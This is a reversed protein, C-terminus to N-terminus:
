PGFQPSAKPMEGGDQLSLMEPVATPQLVSDVSGLHEHILDDQGGEHQDNEQQSLLLPPITSSPLPGEKEVRTSDATAVSEGLKHLLLSVYSVMQKLTNTDFSVKAKAPSPARDTWEMQQRKEHLIQLVTQASAPEIQVESLDPSQSFAADTQEDSSTSPSKSISAVASAPPSEEPFPISKRRTRWGGPSPTQGSLSADSPGSIDMSARGPSVASAIIEKDEEENITALGILEEAEDWLQKEAGSRIGLVVAQELLGTLLKIMRAFDQILGFAGRVNGQSSIISQPVPVGLRVESHHGLGSTQNKQPVPDDFEFDEEWDECLNQQDPPLQSSASLETSGEMEPELDDFDFPDPETSHPALPIFSITSDPTFTDEFCDEHSPLTASLQLNDITPSTPLPFYVAENSATPSSCTPDEDVSIYSSPLPEATPLVRDLSFASISRPRGRTPLSISRSLQKGSPLAETYLEITDPSWSLEHISLEEITHELPSRSHIPEDTTFSHSDLTSCDVSGDYSAFRLIQSQCASDIPAAPETLLSALTTRHEYEKKLGEHGIRMDYEDKWCGPDGILQHDM